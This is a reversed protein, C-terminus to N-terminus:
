FDGHEAGARGHTNGRESAGAAHALRVIRVILPQARGQQDGTTALVDHNIGSRVEPLLCEADSEFAEVGNQEGVTM